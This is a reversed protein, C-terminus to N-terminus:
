FRNSTAPESTFGKKMRDTIWEKLLNLSHTVGLPWVNHMLPHPNYTHTHQPFCPSSFSDKDELPERAPSLCRAKIIILAPPSNSPSLLPLWYISPLHPSAKGSSITDCCFRPVSHCTFCSPLLSPNPYGPLPLLMQMLKPACFLCRHLVHLETHLHITTTCLSTNSWSSPAPM